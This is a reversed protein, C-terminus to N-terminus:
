RAAPAAGGGGDLQTLLERMSPYRASPALALCKAAIGELYAPVDGRVDRLLRPKKHLRMEMVAHPTDAVFPAEGTVLQYLMVGLSYIDSREDTAEGKVQEPSMYAPSGLVAGSATLASDRDGDGRVVKLAVESKLETDYARFVEGMGGKGLLGIVRYRPGFDPHAGAMRLSPRDGRTQDDANDAM